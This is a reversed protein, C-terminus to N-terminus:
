ASPAEPLYHGPCKTSNKCKDGIIEWKPHYRHCHSRGKLGHLLPHEWAHSNPCYILGYERILIAESQQCGKRARQSDAPSYEGKHDCKGRRIGYLDPDTWKSMTGKGNNWRREGERIARLFTCSECLASNPMLPHKIDGGKKGGKLKRGTTVTSRLPSSQKSIRNSVKSASERPTVLKQARPSKVKASKSPLTTNITLNTRPKPLPTTPMISVVDIPENDNDLDFIPSEGDIDVKLETNPTPENLFDMLADPNLSEEYKESYFAGLSAPSEGALPSVYPSCIGYPVKSDPSVPILDSIFAPVEQIPTSECLLPDGMLIPSGKFNEDFLTPTPLSKPEPVFDGEFALTEAFNPSM